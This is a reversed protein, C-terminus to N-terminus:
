FFTKEVTSILSLISSDTKSFFYDAGYKLSAAEHEASDHTTLVVIVSRPLQSKIARIQETCNKPFIAIDLLVVDPSQNSLIEHAQDFDDIEVINANPIRDRIMKRLTRRFAPFPDIIVASISQRVRISNHSNSKLDGM